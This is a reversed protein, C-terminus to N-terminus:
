AHAEFFATNKPFFFQSVMQPRVHFNKPFPTTQRCFDNRAKKKSILIQINEM